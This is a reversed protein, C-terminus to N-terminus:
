EGNRWRWKENSKVYTIGLFAITVITLVSLFIVTPLMFASVNVIALYAILLAWGQWAIPLGVGYGHKKVAFWPSPTM